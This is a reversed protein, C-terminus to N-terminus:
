TIVLMNQLRYSELSMSGIIKLLTEYDLNSNLITRLAQKNLQELKDKGRKSCLHWVDSCYYFAPSIFANYLRRKIHDGILHKFRKGDCMYRSVLGIIEKM